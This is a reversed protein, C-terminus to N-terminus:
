RFDGLFDDSWYKSLNVAYFVDNSPTKLTNIVM